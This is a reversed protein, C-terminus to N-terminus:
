SGAVWRAVEGAADSKGLAAAARGMQSIRQPDSMLPLLTSRLSAVLDSPDRTEEICIGGGRSVLELANLKQHLDKHHPYPIILAPTGTATLEAITVAGGRAIALDGVAYALDMRHSYQLARILLEGEPGGSSLHEKRGPGAVHLVQWRDAMQGLDGAVSTMARNISAAGCSGGLVLLTKRDRHLEFLKIAEKRKARNLDSRVPCGVPHVKERVRGPFRERTSEFQTFIAQVKRSLYRNAIGPVADPNLLATKLGLRGARRMVPVAAFGGTALVARPRLDRIMDRAIACSRTWAGAFPVIEPVRRPLPRIPAPVFAHGTRELILHDVDRQSCAFVVRADRELKL